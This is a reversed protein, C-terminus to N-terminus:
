IHRWTNGRLVGSVAGLRKAQQRAIVWFDEETIVADFSADLMNRMLEIADGQYAVLMTKGPLYLGM